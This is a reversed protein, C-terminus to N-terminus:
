LEGRLGFIPLIPLGSQYRTRTYNYNYEIAEPNSRNYINQVDVYATIRFAGFAWQKDIRVDAQHFLPLRSGFLRGARCAYVGTAANQVGGTCPTYPSGSILRFRGGVRWGRGLEYSGLATLNHTQDYAFLHAAEGPHDTRTARSLTYALWGFFGKAPRHRLLVEMGIVGGRGSNDYGLSGDAEAVRVVLQDLQKYFGEVSLDVAQALEQEIGASDHIARNSRLGPTGFVDYAEVLQPPEHFVGVGGKATTRPFGARLDYRALFRPSVDTRGTLDDHDVRESVTLLAAPAPQWTAEVYGAISALWGSTQLALLPRSSMPGPDPSSPDPPQVTRADAMYYTVVADPGGRLTVSEAVRWVVEARLAIPRYTTDAHIAGYDTRERDTGLSATASLSVRQSAQGRFVVQWRSMSVRQALSTGLGPDRPPADDFLLALRDDSGFWGVRLMSSASPRTEALLQWDYYVPATRVTGVDSLLSGIWADLHSRRAGARFEWSDLLPVPGSLMLRADILDVQALGHYRGDHAGQRLKVDVIGGTVRGYRAPFSGPYFDIADIMETPVVSSLGGFHYALPLPTGDLFVATGTPASGRVVLMGSFADTRAVGPMAQVARLADGSTGPVVSLESRKLTRRLVEREPQEGRVRVELPAPPLKLRYIVEVREGARLSERFEATGYGPAYVELSVDGAPLGQWAWRGSENAMAELARGDALRLKVIAGALPADLGAILVTGALSSPLTGQPEPPVSSPLEARIRFQSRYLIRAAVPAGSRTAPEFELLRAAEVAAEDFGHGQPEKVTAQRVRGDEGIDLILVVTAELGESKAQPPYAPEVDRVLVPPNVAGLSTGDGAKGASQASAPRAPCLLAASAIAASMLRHKM